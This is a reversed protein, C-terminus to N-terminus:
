HTLIKSVATKKGDPGIIIESQRPASVIAAVQQLGQMVAQNSRALTEAIMQLGQMLAASAQQEPTEVSELSGGEGDVVNAQKMALAHARDNQGGSQMTKYLELQMKQGEIATRGQLEQGKLAVEQGKLKLEEGKMGLEAKKFEAEPNPKPQSASAKVTAVFRDLADEAQKGLKFHRASASYIEALPEAAEPHELVIPGVQAFFQATGALFEAMDQKQRSLDAKITSDSEVNVRYTADVPSRMLAQVGPTLEIGTMQMLTQPNFKTSIIHAMMVFIDRVQREMLRQMKQIRLSGWQTKIQQATATEGANSAGRVIDSIGTIEYIAAKIQDRQAYLQALVRAAPEIPWWAIAKDLGGTQVLQELNAEIKIENDDAESLSVLSQANGAAIGRVKMGSIIKNIRKTVLDLENALKKYITFPCVPTRKGTVTIPQVPQPMPFFVPLGLPDDVSKIIAQDSCRVFHVQRKEKDWFEWVEVDKPEEGDERDKEGAKLLKLMSADAFKEFAEDGMTSRFAVWPVDKWRMAPGEAYDRWSVAEFTIAEGKVNVEDTFDADFRLRVIGRGATFADQASAENEADLRNDDIQVSISRELMTGYSKADTDAQKKQQYIQTSQQYQQMEVEFRMVAEQDVPAPQQGEMPPGGNHGMQAPQPQEPPKPEPMTAEVRRPRIDPVPTSNYIAPVITEVNSHLINFDYIKGEGDLETDGSYAKEAATAENRWSQERKKAGNIRELIAAGRKRLTAADLKVAAKEDQSDDM